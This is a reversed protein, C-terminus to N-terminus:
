DVGKITAWSTALKGRPFVPRPRADVNPDPITGFVRVGSFDMARWDIFVRKVGTELDKVTWGSGAADFILKGDSTWSPWRYSRFVGGLTVKRIEQGQPDTVFIHFGQGSRMFAILKGDPSWMADSGGDFPLVHFGNGDIDIITLRGFLIQRSDPSWSFRDSSGLILFHADTGDSRVLWIALKGQIPPGNFVIWQGDPSWEPSMGEIGLREVESGDSEMTYLEHQGERNSSFVIRTGDPSWSGLYDKFPSNTINRENTGDADMVYIDPIHNWVRPDDNFTSRQFAIKGMPEAFASGVILFVAILLAITFTLCRM